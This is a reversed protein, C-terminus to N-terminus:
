RRSNTSFKMTLFQSYDRSALEPLASVADRVFAKVDTEADAVNEEEIEFITAATNTVRYEVFNRGAREQRLFASCAKVPRQDAERLELSV